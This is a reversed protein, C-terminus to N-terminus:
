APAVTEPIGEQAILAARRSRAFQAAPSRLWARRDAGNRRALEARAARGLERRLEPHLALYVGATLALSAAVNVSQEVLVERLHDM